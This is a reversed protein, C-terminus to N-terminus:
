NGRKEDESERCLKAVEAAVYPDDEVLARFDDGCVVPRGDGNTTSSLRGEAILRAVLSAFRDDASLLEPTWEIRPRQPVDSM